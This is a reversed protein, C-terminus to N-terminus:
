PSKLVQIVTMGTKGSPNLSETSIDDKIGAYGALIDEAEAVDFAADRFDLKDFFRFAISRESFSSFLSSSESAISPETVTAAHLLLSPFM